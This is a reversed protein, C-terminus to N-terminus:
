GEYLRKSHTKLNKKPTSAIENTPETQLVARTHGIAADLVVGTTQYAAQTEAPLVAQDATVVAELSAIENSLVQDPMELAASVAPESSDQLVGAQPAERRPTAAERWAVWTAGVLITVLGPWRGGTEARRAVLAALEARIDAAMRKGDILTAM